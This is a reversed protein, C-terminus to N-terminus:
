DVGDLEGIGISSRFASGSEADVPFLMTRPGKTQVLMTFPEFDRAGAHAGMETPLTGFRGPTRAPLPLFRQLAREHQVRSSNMAPLYELDSTMCIAIHLVICTHSRRNLCSQIISRSPSERNKYSFQTPGGRLHDALPQTNQFGAIQAALLVADDAETLELGAHPVQSRAFFM